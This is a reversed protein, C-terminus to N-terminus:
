LGSTAAILCYRVEALNAVLQRHALITAQKLGCKGKKITMYVVGDVILEMVNYREIIDEPIFSIHINMHEANRM